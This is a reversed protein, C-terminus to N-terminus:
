INENMIENYHQKLKKSITFDNTNEDKFVIHFRSLMTLLMQQNNQFYEQISMESIVILIVFNPQIGINLIKETWDKLHNGVEISYDVNLEVCVVEENIYNNWNDDLKKHYINLFTKHVVETKGSWTPGFLWINRRKLQKKTHFTMNQLLRIGTLAKPIDKYDMCSKWENIDIENLDMNPHDKTLIDSRKINLNDVYNDTYACLRLLENYNKRHKIQPRYNKFTLRFKINQDSSKGSYNIFCFTSNKYSVGLYSSFSKDELKKYIHRILEKLEEKILNLGTYILTIGTEKIESKKYDILDICEEGNIIEDINNESSSLEDFGKFIFRNRPEEEKIENNASYFMSLKNCTQNKSTEAKKKNKNADNRRTRNEDCSINNRQTKRKLLANHSANSIKNFSDFENIKYKRNKCSSLVSIKNKCPIIKNNGNCSNVSNIQGSIPSRDSDILSNNTYNLMKNSAPKRGKIVCKKEIENQKPSKISNSNNYKNKPIDNSEQKPCLGSKHKEKLKDNDHSTTSKGFEKKM